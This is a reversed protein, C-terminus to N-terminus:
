GRANEAEVVTNHVLTVIEKLMKEREDMPQSVINWGLALEQELQYLLDDWYQPLCAPNKESIMQIHGRNSWIGITAAPCDRM